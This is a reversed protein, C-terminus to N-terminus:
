VTGAAAYGFGDVTATAVRFFKCDKMRGLEVHVSLSDSGRERSLIGQHLDRPDAHERGHPIPAADDGADLRVIVFAPQVQDV